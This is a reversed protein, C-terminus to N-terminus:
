RSAIVASCVSMPRNVLRWRRARSSRSAPHGPQPRRSAALLREAQPASRSQGVDPTRGEGFRLRDPEVLQAEHRLLVGVVHAERQALVGGQHRLQIPGDELVRHALPEPALQHGGEVPTIPLRVRQCGVGPRPLPEGVLETDVRALRQLLELHRDQPLVRGQGRRRIPLGRRREHRRHRSARRGPSRSAAPRQAGHRRRPHRPRGGGREPPAVEDGPDAIQQGVSLDARQRQRPWAAGSLGSQSGHRRRGHGVVELAPDDVESGGLARVLGLEGALQGERHGPGIVLGCKPPRSERMRTTSSLRSDIALPPRSTCSRTSRVEHRVTSDVLRSGSRRRASCSIGTGRELDRPLAGGRILDGSRRGDLHEHVPGDGDRRFEPQQVMGVVDGVQAAEEVTKWQRDFQRRRVRPQERRGLDPGRQLPIEPKERGM